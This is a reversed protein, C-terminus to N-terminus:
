SVEEWEGKNDNWTYQKGDDPMDTPAKWSWKSEDLIWKSYPKPGYFVDNDTDYTYGIGEYNGRLAKSQDSSPNNSNAEYHVGGRTNYSTQVWSGPSDDVFNDFFSAEAVIVKTVTGNVVKAFHGM